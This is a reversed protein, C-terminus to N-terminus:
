GQPAVMYSVYSLRVQTNSFYHLVEGRIKLKNWDGGLCNRLGQLLSFVLIFRVKGIKVKGIKNSPITTKKTNKIAGLYKDIRTKIRNM